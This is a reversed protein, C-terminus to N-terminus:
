EGVDAVLSGPPLKLLFRRVNPWAKFRANGFWNATREYVDRVHRQELVGPSDAEPAVKVGERKGPRETQHTASADDEPRMQDASAVDDDSTWTSRHSKDPNYTSIAPKSLGVACDGKM